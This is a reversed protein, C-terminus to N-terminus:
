TRAARADAFVGTVAFEAQLRREANRRPTIDNVFGLALLGEDSGIFSLSIEAPFERGDKRRAALELGLGHPACPTRSSAAGTHLM